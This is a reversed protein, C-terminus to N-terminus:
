RDVDQFPPLTHYDRGIVVSADLYLEAHREERVRERPLGLAQAVRRAAEPNGVRDIVVTEAEDFSAWNGSEVVDFGRRRLYRTVAEALGSEGVGNRVEVQIVDGLLQASTAASSDPPLDRAPDTRPTLFTRAALGYLLVLVALGGGLLAVNLLANAFRSRSMAPPPGSFPRPM